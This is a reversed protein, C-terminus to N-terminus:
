DFRRCNVCRDEVWLSSKDGGDVYGLERLEALFTPDDIADGAWGPNREADLWRIIRGRYEAALHPAEAALDDLCRPDRGRDFLLLEHTEYGRASRAHHHGELVLIAYIDRHSVAASLGNFSLMFRPDIRRERGQAVPVLSRGPFPSGVGVGALDMLTRGVDVHSVPDEVRVGRPGDPWALILPVHMTEPFLEIHDFYVDHEGLAEAHDGVFAIVGDRVRALDFLPGLSADLYAVEGRYLARPVALDRVGRLESPLVDDPPLDSALPAAPTAEDMGGATNRGANRAEEPVYREPPDYPRHADFLHLWLFLPQGDADALWDSAIRVTEEADLPTRPWSMRDFGQGLGSWPHGLHMVSVAAFTRFGAARFEEALTPAADGLRKRNVRIGVDRTHTGTMLAMHSPNTINTPALADAFLVGRNALRDLIPTEVANTGFVGIHDGRHTDSTVLLVTRPANRATFSRAEGIAWGADGAGAVDVRVVVRVRRGEHADLSLTRTAWRESARADPGASRAIEHEELIEGSSPDTVSLVLSSPASRRKVDVPQGFSVSLRGNEPVALDVEVPRTAFVGEAPRVEGEIEFLSPPGNADPLCSHLPRFSLEARLLGIERRAGSVVIAIEDFPTQIVETPLDILLADPSNTPQPMAPRSRALVKGRHVLEVQIVGTGAYTHILRLQNSETPVYEGRRSIRIVDERSMGGAVLLTGAAAGAPAPRYNTIPADVHWREREGAPEFTMVREDAGIPDSGSAPEFDLPGLTSALERRSCGAIICHAVLCLLICSRAPGLRRAHTDTM